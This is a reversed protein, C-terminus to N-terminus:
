DESRETLSDRRPIARKWPSTGPASSPRGEPSVVRVALLRNYADLFPVLLDSRRGEDAGPVLGQFRAMGRLSESVSRLSSEVREATSTVIQTHAALIGSELTNQNIQLMKRSSIALPGVGVLLLVALLQYLLKIRRPRIAAAATEPAPAPAGTRALTRSM